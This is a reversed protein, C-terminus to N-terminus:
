DVASFQQSSSLHDVSHSKHHLLIVWFSYPLRVFLRSGVLFNAKQKFDARRSNQTTALPVTWCQSRDFHDLAVAARRPWHICSSDRALSCGSHLRGHCRESSATSGSEHCSSWNGTAQTPKWTSFEGTLSTEISSYRLKRSALLFPSLETTRTQYFIKWWHSNFSLKPFHGGTFALM